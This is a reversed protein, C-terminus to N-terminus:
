DDNPHRFRCGVSNEGFFIVSLFVPFDFLFGYRIWTMSDITMVCVSACCRLVSYKFMLISLECDTDNVVLSFTVCIEIWYLWQNFKNNNDYADVGNTWRKVISDFRYVNWTGYCWNILEFWGLGFLYPSTFPLFFFFNINCETQKYSHWSVTMM